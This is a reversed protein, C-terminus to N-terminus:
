WKWCCHFTTERTERAVCWSSEIHRELDSIEAFTKNCLNCKFAKKKIVKLPHHKCFKIIALALPKVVKLPIKPIVENWSEKNGRFKKVYSKILRIWYFRENDLVEFIETSIKNSRKLSQGDLNKLIRQSIHPFRRCILNM